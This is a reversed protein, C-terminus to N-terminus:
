LSVPPAMSRSDNGRAGATQAGAIIKGIESRCSGCNTGARLQAGVQEVTRCGATAAAAIQHIGVAFCACVIRGIEPRPAPSRGSLLARREAGDLPLRSGLLSVLWDRPPLHGHALDGDALGGRAADEPAIELVPGPANSMLRPVRGTRTMTHWQDRLRGTNLTIPRAQDAAAALGEQRVAVFRVRGDPTPFRGDAFLRAGPRGDRPLPRCQPAATDYDADSLAALAGIDLL